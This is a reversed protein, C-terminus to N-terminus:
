KKRRLRVIRECDDISISISLTDPIGSNMLKIKLPVLSENLCLAQYLIRSAPLHTNGLGIIFLESVKHDESQGINKIRNVGSLDLSM